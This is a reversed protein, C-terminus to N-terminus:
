RSGGDLGGDVGDVHCEVGVCGQGSDIHDLLIEGASEYADYVGSAAIVTSPKARPDCDGFEHTGTADTVTAFFYFPDEVGGTGCSAVAGLARMADLKSLITTWETASPTVVASPNSPTCVTRSVTRATLDFILTDNDLDDPCGADFPTGGYSELVVKRTSAGVIAVPVAAESADVITSTADDLGGDGHPETTTAPDSGNTAAATGDPSSAGADTLASGAAGGDGSSCAVVFSMAFAASATVLGLAVFRSQLVRRNAAFPSGSAIRVLVASFATSRAVRIKVNHRRTHWASPAIM